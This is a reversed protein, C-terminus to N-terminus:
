RKDTELFHQGFYKYSYFFYFLCIKALVLYFFLNEILFINIQHFFFCKFRFLLLLLKKKQKQKQLVGIFNLVFAKSLGLLVHTHRGRRPQKEGLQKMCKSHQKKCKNKAELM